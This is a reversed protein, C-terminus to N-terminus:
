YIRFRVPAHAIAPVPHGRKVAPQFLWGSVTDRAAEDLLPISEIVRTRSVRGSEDILIEVVVTGEVRKVFAEQPYRPRTQRVLRPPADYDFVPSAGTGNPLGGPMGDPVGGPLGDEVGGDMGLHSGRDSGTDSGFLEEARVDKEPEIETREEPEAAQIPDVHGKTRAEVVPRSASGRLLAVAAAPPPDYVLVGLLGRQEPLPSSLAVARCLLALGLAQVVGTAAMLAAVRRRRLRPAHPLDGALMQM